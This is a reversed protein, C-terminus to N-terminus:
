TPLVPHPPGRPIAQRPNPASRAVAAPSHPIIELRSFRFSANWVALFPKDPAIGRRYRGDLSLQEPNGSWQILPQGDRTVTVSSSKVDCVITTCRGPAFVPAIRTTPNKDGSKGNVM